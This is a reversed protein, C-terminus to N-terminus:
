DTGVGLVVSYVTLLIDYWGSGEHDCGGFEFVAFEGEGGEGSDESM